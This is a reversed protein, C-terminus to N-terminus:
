DLAMQTSAGDPVIPSATGEVVEWTITVSSDREEFRVPRGSGDAIATVVTGDLLQTALERLVAPRGEDDRDVFVAFEDGEDTKGRAYLPGTPDDAFAIEIAADGTPDTDVETDGEIVGGPDSDAGPGSDSGSGSGTPATCSVLLCVGVLSLKKSLRIPFSGPMAWVKQAM